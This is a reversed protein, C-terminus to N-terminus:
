NPIGWIAERLMKRMASLSDPRHGSLWPKQPTRSKSERQADLSNFEQELGDDTSKRTYVACRTKTSM